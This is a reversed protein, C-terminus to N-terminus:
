VLLGITKVREPLNQVVAALENVDCAYSYGMTLDDQKWNVFDVQDSVDKCLSYKGSRVEEWTAHPNNVGVFAIGRGSRQGIVVKYYFKPVPIRGQQQNNFSLFLPRSVGHEDAVEQIGFTGTYVEADINRRSLFQQVGTEIREWNGSNFSHWQPAANMLYFTTRQQTEYIFDSRAALHGRALFFDRDNDWLQEVRSAGIIGEITMRQRVGTFLHDVSRGGYFIGGIFNPRQMSRQFSLNNPGLPSYSFHTSELVEDHCIDMTWVFRDHVEFGLEIHTANGRCLNQQHHSRRATHRVPELCRLQNFPVSKGKVIFHDNYHCQALLNNSGQFPAAFGADSCFLELTEHPRM